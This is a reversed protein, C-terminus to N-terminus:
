TEGEADSIIVCALDAGLFGYTSVYVNRSVGITGMIETKKTFVELDEPCKQLEQILEKVTMGIM